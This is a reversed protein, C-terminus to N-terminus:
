NSTLGGGKNAFENLRQLGKVEIQRIRERTVGVIKGVEELTRTLGDDLGFRYTLVMKERASLPTAEFLKKFHERKKRNSIIEKVEKFTIM